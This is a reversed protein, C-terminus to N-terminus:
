LKRLEERVVTRDDWPISKGGIIMSQEAGKGTIIVVDGECAVALCKAIGERRDEIVFLNEGRKKGATEAARAIDEVIPTPDDEYPDVNSVVVIDALRGVIEGMIARKVKDRGGGEAGLLVIIKGGEKKLYKAAEMVGTMSQKEHAYDVFVRFSQGKNIEEMRGPIIKLNALGLKISEANIGFEQGILIAPLANYINFAGPISLEYHESKFDFTAGHLNANLNTARNKSEREISFELKEDAKFNTFFGANESDANAIITKLFKKGHFTKRKSKSLAKFLEGKTEKYHDFTKHADIHEPTLNTFVAVDYDIGVHRYQLIGQSTTEVIAVECQERQMERLFRQINFGGPMTMHFPNLIEREGIKVNATTIIGTKIRGSNLVSWIYNISSTKGKTGTVGIVIMQKSPFDFVAAAFLAQFYHYVCIIKSPIIKRFFSKM